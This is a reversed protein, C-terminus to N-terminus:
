IRMALLDCPVVEVFAFTDRFISVATVSFQHNCSDCAFQKCKLIRYVNESKRAPCLTAGRIGSRIGSRITGILLISKSIIYNTSVHCTITLGRDWGERGNGGTAAATRNIAKKGWGAPGSTEDGIQWCIMQWCIIEGCASQRFIGATRETNEHV